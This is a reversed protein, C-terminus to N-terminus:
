TKLFKIHRLSRLRNILPYAGSISILRRAFNLLKVRLMFPTKSLEFLFESKFPHTCLHHTPKLSGTFHVIKPVKDNILKLDELNKIHGSQFNFDKSLSLYNGNVVANLACQDAYTIKEPNTYLYALARKSIKKERWYSSNILMVGTNFYTSNVEMGLENIPQFVPDMVAALPLNTLDVSYLAELDGNVMIDCDLYLIKDAKILDPIAMRYYAEVKLHGREPLGDFDSANVQFFKIQVNSCICIGELYSINKPSLKSYIINIVLNKNNHKLLTRLAVSLLDIYKNNVAFVINIM